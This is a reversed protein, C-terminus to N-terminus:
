SSSSSLGQDSKTEKAGAKLHHKVYWGEEFFATPVPFSNTLLCACKFQRLASKTQVSSRCHEWQERMGFVYAALADRASANLPM